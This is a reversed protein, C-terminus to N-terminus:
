QIYPQPLKPAYKKMNTADDENKAM